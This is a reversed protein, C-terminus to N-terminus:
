KKKKRIKLGLGSCMAGLFYLLENAMNQGTRPLEKALGQPVEEDIIILEDIKGGEIVDPQQLERENGEAPAGQPIEEDEIERDEIEEKSEEKIEKEEKIKKFVATISANHSMKIINSSVLLDTDGIWKDFKWGENPNVTLSVNTNRNYTGRNPSVSGGGEVEISLKYKTITPTYTPPIYPIYEKFNAYLKLNSKAEFEIPNSNSYRDYEKTVENYTLWEVFNNNGRTNATIIVKEGAIYQNNEKNITINGRTSDEPLVEASITYIRDSNIKVYYNADIAETIIYSFPFTQENDITIEKIKEKVEKGDKDNSMKYIIISKLLGENPIPSLSFDCKDGEKYQTISTLNIAEADYDYTVGYDNKREFVPKPLVNYIDVSEGVLVYRPNDKIPNGQQYGLKKWKVFKYDKTPVAEIWIKKNDEIKKTEKGKNMTLFPESENDYRFNVKGIAEPNKSIRVKGDEGVVYIKPHFQINYTGIHFNATYTINDTVVIDLTTLKGKDGLDIINNSSDKATWSDFTYGKNNSAVLKLQTNIDSKAPSDITNGSMNKIYAMGGMTSQVTTTFQKIAYTVSVTVNATFNNIILKNDNISYSDKDIGAVNWILSSEDYNSSSPQATFTIPIKNAIYVNEKNLADKVVQPAEVQGEMTIVGNIANTDITYYNPIGTLNVNVLATDIIHAYTSAYRDVMHFQYELTTPNVYYKEELAPIKILYEREKGNEDINYLDKYKKDSNVYVDVENLGNFRNDGDTCFLKFKINILEGPTADINLPGSIYSKTKNDYFKMNGELKDDKNEGSNGYFTGDIAYYPMGYIEDKKDYYIHITKSENFILTAKNYDVEDAGEIRNFQCGHKSYANIKIESDFVYRGSEDKIGNEEIVAFNNIDTDIENGDKDILHAEIKFIKEDVVTINCTTMVSSNEKSRGTIIANGAKVAIVVGNEDVNAVDKNNTSWIIEQNTANSPLITANIQVQKKPKLNMDEKDLTISTVPIIKENITVSAYAPELDELGWGIYKGTVDVNYVFPFKDVICSTTYTRNNPIFVGIGLKIDDQTFGVNDTICINKYQYGNEKAITITFTVEEGKVVEYSSPTVDLIVTPSSCRTEMINETSELEEVQKEKEIVPKDKEVVPKEEEVVPKEEEIVPKDEEVVPKDEEVVPKDEEVVPKEEEVVLKEEVTGSEQVPTIQQNQDIAINEKALVMIM